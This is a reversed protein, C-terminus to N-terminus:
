LKIFLCFVEFFPCIIQIFIEEFFISLVSMFSSEVDNYVLSISTFIAILYWKDVLIAILFSVSLLLHPQGYPSILVRIYQQHQCLIMCGHKFVVQCNMLHNFIPNLDSLPHVMRQKLLKSLEAQFKEPKIRKILCWLVEYFCAFLCVFCVVEALRQINVKEATRTTM